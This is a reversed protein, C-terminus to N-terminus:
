SIISAAQSSSQRNSLSFNFSFKHALCRVDRCTLALEAVVIEIRTMHRHYNYLKDNIDQALTGSNSYEDVLTLLSEELILPVVAEVLRFLLRICWESRRLLYLSAAGPFFPTKRM